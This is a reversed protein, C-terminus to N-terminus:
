AGGGAAPAADFRIVRDGDGARCGADAPPEAAWGQRVVM